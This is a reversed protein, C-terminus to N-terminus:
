PKQDRSVRKEGPSSQTEWRTPSCGPLHVDPVGPVELLLAWWDQAFPAPDEVSLYDFNPHRLISAAIDRITSVTGPQEVLSSDNQLFSLLHLFEGKLWHCGVDVEYSPDIQDTRDTAQLWYYHPFDAGMRVNAALSQWMRPNIEVLKFEGTREDRIYELCALGHWELHDLLRTSVRELDSNSISERYVGGAGTYELGRIQHHQVTALPEGHDYLAGVMYEEGPIYEQVIPDHRMRERLGALGSSDEPAIHEQDKVETVRNQELSTQEGPVLLNYRSKIVQGDSTEVGDSLRRTRPYPVGAQAAKEGLRLRDHVMRLSDFGPVPLSVHREFEDRYNSLVYIDVERTPIITEVDPRSAIDLMTALYDDLSHEPDPVLYAEDCYSSYFAAVSRQESVAITNVGKSGLSRLCATTSPGGYAPVVVSPGSNAGEDDM